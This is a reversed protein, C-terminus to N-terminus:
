GEMIERIREVISTNEYGLGHMEDVFRGIIDQSMEERLTDVLSEDDVIFRGVGRKSYAMGLREMEQYAKQVTNPNVKLELAFDRVSSLKDGPKIVGIVLDKKIQYIIQIYIPIHNEFKM